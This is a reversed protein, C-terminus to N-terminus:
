AIKGWIDTIGFERFINELEVFEDVNPVIEGNLRNYFANRTSIGFMTMIKARVKAIDAQRVQFWGKQFSYSELKKM